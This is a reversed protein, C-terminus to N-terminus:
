ADIRVIRGEVAVNLAEHHTTAKDPVATAAWKHVAKMAQSEIAIKLKHAARLMMFRKRVLLPMIPCNEHDVVEKSEKMADFGDKGSAVYGTTAVTYFRQLDLPAGQITVSGELVRQGPEANGNFKFSINSVCPFRGETAPWKSVGNELLSLLGAGSISRIQTSEAIPLLRTLDKLHFAGAPFVCDARLSGSNLIACEAQPKLSTRLMDAVANGINTEETRIKAFRAEFDLALYGIIKDTTPVEAALKQVLELMPKDQPIEDTIFVTQLEVNQLKTGDFTLTLHSLQRFDVGSKLIPVNGIKEWGADHDHGGLILDLDQMAEALKRDNPNRMHTLAIILTCGEARLEDALKRGEEIFDIYHVTAPDVFALTDLWEAEVLGMLGIKHGQHHISLKRIGGGLPKTTGKEYVNSLLWPFDSCKVLKEVTSTGFDFDHNGLCAVNIDLNNLVDLM